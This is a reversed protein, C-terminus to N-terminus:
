LTTLDALEENSLRTKFILAQKADVKNKGQAYQGQAIWVQNLTIQSAFTGTIVAVQQGNCYLATDGNKYAFAAKFNSSADITSSINIDAGSGNYGYFQIKGSGNTMIFISGQSARNISVLETSPASTGEFFLTGETQGILDPENLIRVSTDATRSVSSGYTPIYSTPYSADSEMQYGWVFYSGNSVRSTSSNATATRVRTDFITNNTSDTCVLTLRYWGNGADEIKTADDVVSTTGGETKSGKVGNQIDFWTSASNAFGSRIQILRIWQVGSDAKIYVSQTKTNGSTGTAQEFIQDNNGTGTLVKYANQVGEPSTTANPTATLGTLSLGQIYESYTALNTRQPELLLAPCSSDTYDLRPVNDTIGGYVAATTTTIVDRAVLGQEVQADQIYINDGTTTIGVDGNAGACYFYILNNNTANFTMSCRYWGNGVDIMQSDIAVNPQITGNVLDFNVFLSPSSSTYLRIFPATGAKAYISFTNVGTYTGFQARYSYGGSANHISANNTGDYGAQGGTIGSNNGTWSTIFSNSQLLQNNTEKEINGDANVRTAASARTFTFDGDGSVPKQSFVKGTKTGSPILVLSSKDYISM